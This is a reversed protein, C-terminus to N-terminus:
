VGERYGSMQPDNYSVDTNKPIYKIFGPTPMTDQPIIHPKQQYPRASKQVPKKTEQKKVSITSRKHIDKNPQKKQVQRSKQILKPPQFDEKQAYITIPMFLLIMVIKIILRNM